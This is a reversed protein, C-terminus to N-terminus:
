WGGLRSFDSFIMQDREPDRVGTFASLHIMEVGEWHAIWKSDPSWAPVKQEIPAEIAHHYDMEPKSIQRANSGDLNSVWIRMAGSRNSVFAIRDGKPSVAPMSNSFKLQEPDTFLRRSEGTEVNMLHIQSKSSPEHGPQTKMWVIHKSDPLWCPLLNRGDDTLVRSNKGNIILSGCLSVTALRNFTPWDKVTLRAPLCAAATILIRPASSQGSGDEKMCYLQLVGNGDTHSVIVERLPRNPILEIEGPEEEPEEAM